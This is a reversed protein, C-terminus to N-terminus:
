IIYIIIKMQIIIIQFAFHMDFLIIQDWNL